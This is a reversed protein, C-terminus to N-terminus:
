RFPHNTLVKYWLRIFLSLVILALLIMIATFIGNNSTFGVVVLITIVGIYVLSLAILLLIRVVRPLKNSQITEFGIDLIFELIDDM